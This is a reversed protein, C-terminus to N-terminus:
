RFLEACIEDFADILRDIQKKRTVPSVLMMNHFPAILLGRNVLSLHVAAEVLPQYAEEAETGNRLPGPACIFEVRAGCRVVHWPVDREKIVLRLGKELRKAGSEMRQYAGKTMVESLTARLAAFQLPNGSLTTGMGTHGPEREAEQASLRSAVDETM